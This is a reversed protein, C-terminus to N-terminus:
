LDSTSGYDRGGSLGDSVLSEESRARRRAPRLHTIKDNMRGYTDRAANLARHRMRPSFMMLATLGGVVAVCLGALAYAGLTVRRRPKMVYPITPIASIVGRLLADIKRKSIM